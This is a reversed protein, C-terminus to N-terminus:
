GLLTYWTVSTHVRNICTHQHSSHPLLNFAAAWLLRYGRPGCLHVVRAASKSLPKWLVVLRDTLKLFGGLGYVAAVKRKEDVQDVCFKDLFGFACRSHEEVTDGKPACVSGVAHKQGSVDAVYITM